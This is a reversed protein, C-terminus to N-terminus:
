RRTLRPWSEGASAVAPAAGGKRAFAEGGIGGWTV